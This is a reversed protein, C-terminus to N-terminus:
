PLAATPLGAKYQNMIEDPSLARDYLALSGMRGDWYGVQSGLSPEVGDDDAKFGIALSHVPVSAPIPMCPHSAILRGDRFLSATHGDCTFAVHLWCGTPLSHGVGESVETVPTEVDFAAPTEGGLELALDGGPDNLGFHFAGDLESGWNKAISAWPNRHRCFVWATCTMEGTRTAPYDPVLLRQQKAPDFDVASLGPLRGAAWAPAYDGDLRLNYRGFTAAARNVVVDPSKTRDGFSYYLALTPDRCVQQEAARVREAPTAATTWEAFQGVRVFRSAVVDIAVAPGAASDLHRGQGQTLVEPPGAQGNLSVSGRFVAVDTRGDPGVDVGFETGLDVVRCSPGTVAFGHAAKPVEATVRGTTVQLDSASSAQVTAPAEVVVSAGDGFALRAWGTKLSVPGDPMADGVRLPRGDMGRPDANVAAVLTAAAGHASSASIVGVPQQRAAHRLAVVGVALAVVAALGGLGGPGIRRRRTASRARETLSEGGMLGHAPTVTAGVVPEAPASRRVDSDDRIAPQVIADHLTLNGSEVTEAPPADDNSLRYWGQSAAERGTIAHETLLGHLRAFRVFLERTPQHVGLWENLTRVEEDPLSGDLYRVVRDAAADESLENIATPDPM